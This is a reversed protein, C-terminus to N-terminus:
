VQKSSEDKGKRESQGFYFSVISIVITYFPEDVKIKCVAMGCLTTVTLIALWGRVSVGFVKSENM